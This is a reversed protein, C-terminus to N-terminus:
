KAYLLHQGRPPPSGEEVGKFLEALQYRTTAKEDLEQTAATALAGESVTGQAADM